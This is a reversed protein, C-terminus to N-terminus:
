KLFHRHILLFELPNKVMKNAKIPYINTPSSFDYLLSNSFKEVNILSVNTGLKNKM